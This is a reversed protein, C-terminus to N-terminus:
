RAANGTYLKAFWRLCKKCHSPMDGFLYCMSATGEGMYIENGLCQAMYIAGQSPYLPGWWVFSSHTRAHHPASLIASNPSNVELVVDRLGPVPEQVESSLHPFHSQSLCCLSPPSSLPGKDCLSLPLSFSKYQMIIHNLLVLCAEVMSQSVRSLFISQFASKLLEQGASKPIRLICLM